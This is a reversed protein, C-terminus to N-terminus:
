PNQRRLLLRGAAQPFVKGNEHAFTGRLYTRKVVGRLRRGRYPTAVRHGDQVEPEVTFEEDPDFVVLDADFGVDISGKRALGALQAPALCMWRVVQELTYERASAGTWVISLGAQVSAIGARAELFNRSAGVEPAPWHDSVVSQVLGGALAAWLFERNARDRIPPACKYETAGDPIEEAVFTLYQPCTEATIPLRRSRAHFIPTLADSSSLHVIHTHLRHEECLQILLAIAENEAAKPRSDLYTAYRCAARSVGPIRDLWARHTRRETAAQGIPGPLEAHALLPAGIRALAPMSARLHAESVAPPGGAEFSGLACTFGLAGAQFLAPLERENNPIVGAWFGVDVFCHGQAARCKSELAAVATTPLSGDFPMAIITTVGGAAAARTTREFAEPSTQEPEHVHVHTDVLGPLVVYDRADDVPCGSPADDIDVVGAIRGNLIHIAAPRIGLPTVVRRSRVVLDPLFL